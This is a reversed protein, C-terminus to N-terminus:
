WDTYGYDYGGYDDGGYYDESYDSYGGYDSDYDDYSSSNWETYADYDDYYYTPEEYADNSEYYSGDDDVYGDSGYSIFQNEYGNWYWVDGDSDTWYYATGYDGPDSGGSNKSSKGASKKSSKSSSKKTSKAKAPQPPVAKPSTTWDNKYTCSDLMKEAIQAYNEVRKETAIAISALAYGTPGFYRLEIVGRVPYDLEQKFVTGDLWLYGKISYYNGCDKFDSGIYKVLKKEYYLKIFDELMYGMVKKGIASGYKLDRDFEETLPQFMVVISSYYDVTGKGHEPYFNLAHSIDKRPSTLMHEPYYIDVSDFKDPFSTMQTLKDEPAPLLVMEDVKTLESGGVDVLKGSKNLTYSDKAGDSDFTLTIKDGDIEYTGGDVKMRYVNTASWTKDKEITIYVSVDDYKWIGIFDEDSAAKSATSTKTLVPRSVTATTQKPTAAAASDQMTFSLFLVPLFIVTFYKRLKFM